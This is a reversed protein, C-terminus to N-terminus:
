RDLTTVMLRYLKRKRIPHLHEIRLRRTGSLLGTIEGTDLIIDGRSFRRIQQSRNEYGHDGDYLERITKM